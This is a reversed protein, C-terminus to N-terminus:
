REGPTKAGAVAPQPKTAADGSAAESGATLKGRELVLVRDARRALNLNHTALISTLHHSRHLRQMLEFVGEASREDLDGTPEDALLV